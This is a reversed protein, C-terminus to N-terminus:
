NTREFLAKMNRPLIDLMDLLDGERLKHALAAPLQDPPTGAMLLATEEASFAPGDEVWGVVAKNEPCIAQCHMCGVLCNHWAPKLWDPFPVAGPKENHYVICREAHLLFREEVIAGTPCRRLCARCDTCRELMRVPQWPADEDCPLDSYFAAPRHFSGLGAVYTINNRGYAALGSRVALLKEPLAAPVARYGWPALAEVLCDQLQRDAEQGHLYTPPVIASVPRGQWTFTVRVQPQKVAAVILSRAEPLAAPPTFDFWALREQYFEADFAGDRYFAAIGERLDDLHRISVVRGVYGRQALHQTVNTEL